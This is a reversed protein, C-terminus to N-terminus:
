GGFNTNILTESMAVDRGDVEEPNGFQLVHKDEDYFAVYGCDRPFTIDFLIRSDATGANDITILNTGDDQKEPSAEFVNITRKFPDNCLIYWEAKISNRGPDPPECGSPTGIFFKDPEDNFIFTADQTNLVGTLINFKQMLEGANPATLRFCVKITREQYRRQKIRSGHQAGISKTKVEPAILERGTTFLTQYGDILDELYKGNITVAESPYVKETETTDTVPVTDIFDYLM